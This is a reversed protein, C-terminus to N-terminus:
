MPRTACATAVQSNQRLCVHQALRHSRNADTAAISKQALISRALAFNGKGAQKFLGAYALRLLIRGVGEM